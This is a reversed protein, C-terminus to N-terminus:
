AIILCTHYLQTWMEKPFRLINPQKWLIGANIEGSNLHVLEMFKVHFIKVVSFIIKVKRKKM